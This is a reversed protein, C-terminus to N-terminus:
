RMEACSKTYPLTQPHRASAFEAEQVSSRFLAAGFYTVTNEGNIYRMGCQAALKSVNIGYSELSALAKHPFRCPEGTKKGCVPCLRCGGAGLHLAKQGYKGFLARVNQVLDNHFQGAEM